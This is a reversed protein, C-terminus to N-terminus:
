AGPPKPRGLFHDVILQTKTAPAAVEAGGPVGFQSRRMPGPVRTQVEISAPNAPSAVRM